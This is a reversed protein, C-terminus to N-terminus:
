QHTRSGPLDPRLAGLTATLAAVMWAQGWRLLPINTIFTVGYRRRRAWAFYGASPGADRWLARATAHFVADAHRLFAPASLAGAERMAAACLLAEACSHVEIVDSRGRTFHPIGEPTFFDALWTSLYCEAARRFEGLGTRTGISHLARIEFGSHYTDQQVSPGTQANSWYALTGDERIQNLSFRAAALGTDVWDARGVEQGIRVLFEAAFLNANHVQFRDVPSYSFCFSGDSAPTSRNLGTMFFRCVAECVALAEAQRCLHYRLWYADGIIASTVATPTSRPIPVRSQWDFPYGWGFGAGCAVRNSDLWRFCPLHGPEGGVRRPGGELSELRLFASAFLGMAKANVRPVAGLVRRIAIPFPEELRSIVTSVARRHLRSGALSWRGVATDWVDYPDWGTWGNAAVWSLCRQLYEALAAALRAQPEVVDM